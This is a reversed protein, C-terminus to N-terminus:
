ASVRVPAGVPLREQASTGIEGGEFVWADPNALIKEVLAQHLAHGGRVATIHGAVPLGLLSLDGILDLVKHRV